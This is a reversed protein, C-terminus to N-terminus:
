EDVIRLNMKRFSITKETIFFISTFGYFMNNQKSM